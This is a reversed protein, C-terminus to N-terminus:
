TAAFVVLGDAARVGQGEPMVFLPNIEATELRDELADAMAALSGIAQVLAAVDALPRGRFGDLLVRSKLEVLMDAADSERLPLLRVATDDFVETTVGGAGLVLALGLQPDRVVGLLMEVGGIVQEQVLWGEFVAESPVVSRLQECVRTVDSANVGVRVGGVDTKHGVNASLIKLVVPGRLEHAFGEAESPTQAVRQRVVQIGWRSFFELSEAENLQGTQSTGGFDLNRVVETPPTARSRQGFDRLAV